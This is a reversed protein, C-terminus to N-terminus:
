KSTLSVLRMVEMELYAYKAEKVLFHPDVHGVEVLIILMAKKGVTSDDDSDDNGDIACTMVLMAKIVAVIMKYLLLLPNYSLYWNDQFWCHYKFTHPNCGLQSFFMNFNFKMIVKGPNKQFITVYM